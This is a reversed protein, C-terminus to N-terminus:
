DRDPWFEAILTQIATAAAELIRQGKEESALSPKGYVGNGSLVDFPRYCSAAAGHMLDFHMSEVRHQIGDDEALSMDVLDPAVALMVSTEFECAHGVSGPPGEQIPRLVANAAQWWSTVLIEVNPYTQGLQEGLVGNIAQNGGHSNLILVRHFGHRIVSDVTDTVCRRFTEHTLTLSGVFRMHHESCGIQQTPLILLGDDLLEDTRRAIAEGIVCDTNFPLHKGHQETAAVPLVVPTQRSMADLQHRRLQSWQM